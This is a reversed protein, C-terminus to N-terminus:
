PRSERAVEKGKVQYVIERPPLFGLEERLPRDRANDVM